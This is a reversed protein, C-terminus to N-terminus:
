RPGRWHHRNKARREWELAEKERKKDLATPFPPRFMEHPAKTPWFYQDHGGPRLRVEGFKVPSGPDDLFFPDGCGCTYIARRGDVETLEVPEPDAGAISAWVFISKKEVLATIDTEPTM